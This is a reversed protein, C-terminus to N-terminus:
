VNGYHPRHKEDLRQATNDKEFVKDELSKVREDLDALYAKLEEPVSDPIKKDAM